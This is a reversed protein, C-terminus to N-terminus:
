YCVVLLVPLYLISYKRRKRLLFVAHWFVTFNLCIVMIVLNCKAHYHPKSSTAAGHLILRYM